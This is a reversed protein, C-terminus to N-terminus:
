RLKQNYTEKLTAICVFSIAGGAVVYFSPAMINHTTMILYTCIFPAMGGFLVVGTNYGLSLASLRIKTPFIEALAAAGPGSFAAELVAFILQATVICGFTAKNLLAFLPYSLLAFGACSALLVPKRGIRDSLAGMLPTLCLFVVLGITNSTMTLSLPFKVIKSVYTPLYNLAVYYSVTWNITFGISLLIEKPYQRLTEVLPSGSKAHAQEVEKFRPTEELRLRLYLGVIAITIGLLFPIRWGWATFAQVSLAGSVFAAMASGGLLGLGVSFMQFSGIFGRNNENAYEVIFSTSGIWEGGASFGQILRLFTLLIPAWVGLQAHTPLLGISFTAMGMMVMTFALVNRRGFKDGYHGFIFGGLPRMVFGVGFVAFTVLLSTLASKAPFFLSSLVPAFYGYIGFDYWEM